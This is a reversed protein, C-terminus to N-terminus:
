PVQQTCVGIEVVQFEIGRRSISQDAREGLFFVGDGLGDFGSSADSLSLDACQQTDCVILVNLVNLLAIVHESCPRRLCLCFSPHTPLHHITRLHLSPTIHRHLRHLHKLLHTLGCTLILHYLLRLAPHMHLNRNIQPRCFSTQPVTEHHTLLILAIDDISSFLSSRPHATSHMELSGTM